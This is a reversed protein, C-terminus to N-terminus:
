SIPSSLISATPSAVRNRGHRTCIGNAARFATRTEAAAPGLLPTDALWIAARAAAGGGFGRSIIVTEALTVIPTPRSKM